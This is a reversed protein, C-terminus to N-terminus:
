YLMDLKDLEHFLLRVDTVVTRTLDDQSYVFSDCTTGDQYECIGSFLDTDNGQKSSSNVNLYQMLASQHSGDQVAYTDATGNLLSSDLSCRLVSLSLRYVVLLVMLMELYQFVNAVAVSIPQCSCRGTKNMM